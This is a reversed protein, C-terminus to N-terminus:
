RLHLFFFCEPYNAEKGQLFHKRVLRGLCVVLFFRSTLYYIVRKSVLQNEGMKRDRKGIWKEM